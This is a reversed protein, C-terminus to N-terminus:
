GWRQRKAEQAAKQSSNIESMALSVKSTDLEREEVQLHCFPILGHHRRAPLWDKHPASVNDTLKDLAKSEEAAERTKQSNSDDAPLSQDDSM